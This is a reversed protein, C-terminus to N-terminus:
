LHAEPAKLSALFTYWVYWLDTRASILIRPPSIVIVTVPHLISPQALWSGQEFLVVYRPAIGAFLGAASQRLIKGEDLDVIKLDPGPTRRHSHTAFHYM